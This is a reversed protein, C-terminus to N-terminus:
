EWAFLKNFAENIVKISTPMVDGDHQSNGNRAQGGQGLVGTDNGTEGDLMDDGFGGILLDNGADGHLKDNGDGGSLTDNGAGGEISDDGAQGSLADNKSGGLLTDNGDGGVLTVSGLTFASADLKNNSAGGTLSVNEIGTLKDAGMGDLSTNTLTFDVDGSQILLDTGAGGNLMDDGLGGTITDNGAGGSITQKIAPALKIDSGILLDNGANGNIVITKLGSYLTKDLGTLNVEDKGSGGNFTLTEIKDTQSYFPYAIGNITVALMGNVVVVRLKASGKATYTVNPTIDTITVTGNSPTVTISVTASSSQPAGGTNGNDNITISLSDFGYFLPNPLYTLGAANAMTANIAALPATITVSATGNNTIQSTTVGSTVNGLVTLKGGPASLTVTVNSTGADVDAFSLGTIVKATGQPTTQAAPTAITPPDNVANVTIVFTKAASTDSGSNATGGNDTATVSFTATGNSNAATQFTLTGTVPDIAPATTFTLGGTTSVSTVTYKTVAQATPNTSNEDVGGFSTVTAFSAVTKFATVPDEDVIVNAISLSLTPADNVATISLPITASSTLPFNTTDTISITLTDSGNYNASPTYTLGSSNALTANVQAVTASVSTGVSVSMMSNSTVQTATLGSGVNESLTLTGHGVTFTVTVPDAASTLTIGTIAKATDELTTQTGPVALTPAAALLTREELRELVMQWPSQRSQRRRNRKSWLNM